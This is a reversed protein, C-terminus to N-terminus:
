RGDRRKKRANQGCELCCQGIISKMYNTSIIQVSRATRRAMTPRTTWNFIHTPIRKTSNQVVKFCKTSMTGGKPHKKAEIKFGQPWKQLVEDVNKTNFLRQPALPAGPAGWSPWGWFLTVNQCNNQPDNETIQWNNQKDNQQLFAHLQWLTNKYTKRATQLLDCWYFIPFVKYPREFVPNM